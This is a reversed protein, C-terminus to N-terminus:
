HRNDKIINYMQSLAPKYKTSGWYSFEPVSLKLQDSVTHYDKNYKLIYYATLVTFTRSYGDRCCIAINKREQIAKEIFSVCKPIMKMFSCFDQSHLTQNLCNIGSNPDIQVISNTLNLVYKINNEKLVRYEASLGIAGMYINEAVKTLSLKKRHMKGTQPDSSSDTDTSTRTNLNM